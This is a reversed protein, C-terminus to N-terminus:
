ACNKNCPGSSSNEEENVITSITLTALIEKINKAERRESAQFDSAGNPFGRM